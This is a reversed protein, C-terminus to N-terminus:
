ISMEVFFSYLHGVFFHFSAWYWKNNSFHLYKHIDMLLPISLFSTTCIYLPINILWLFPHFQTMQLSTPSGLTRWVSHFLDSLFFCTNYTLVYIHSRSFDITSIIRNASCSYLCLRLSCVQPCSSPFSLTCCVSLWTDSVHVSGHAFDIPPPFSHHQMPLETWHETIVILTLNPHPPLSAWSPPSIHISIGSEHQQVASSVLM